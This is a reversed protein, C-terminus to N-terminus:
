PHLRPAHQFRGSPKLGPVEVETWAGSVRDFSRLDNYFTYRDTWIAGGFLLVRGNVEDYVLRPGM